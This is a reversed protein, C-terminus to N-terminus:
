QQPPPPYAVWYPFVGFGPINWETTFPGAGANPDPGNPLASASWPPAETTFRGAGADPNSEFASSTYYPAQTKFPGDGASMTPGAWLDPGADHTRRPGEANAERTQDAPAPGGADATSVGADVAAQDAPAANAPPASAAPAIIITRGGGAQVVVVGGDMTVISADAPPATAVAPPATPVAGADADASASASASSASGGGGSGGAASIDAALNTTAAPAAAVPGRATAGTTEVHSPEADDNSAGSHRTRSPARHADTLTVLLVVTLASAAVAAVIATWARASKARRLERARLEDAGDM